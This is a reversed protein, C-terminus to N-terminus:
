ARTGLDSYFNVINNDPDRFWTSRRGWPQTTPPKLARPGLSSLRAFQADVDDVEVELTYRASGAGDMSGPVM